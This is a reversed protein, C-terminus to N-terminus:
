GKVEIKLRHVFRQPRKAQTALASDQVQIESIYEGSKSPIGSILGSAADLSLGPPLSGTMVSWTYEGNGGWATLQHTFPKGIFANKRRATSTIAVGKIPQLRAAFNNRLNAYAPDNHRSELEFPDNILDYLEVEGTPHEVYKWEGNFDQSRLGAWLFGVKGYDTGYGEILFDKRWAANPDALLPALNLGDTAKNVGALAFMTAPVDLNIAALKNEQRAGIGPMRIVFPVKISEEYAYRKAWLGHEGWMYGNDSTLIIITKELVNLEQLKNLIKAVARDVGRLTRLQNRHFEEEEQASDVLFHHDAQHETVWAPKDSLDAEGFGRGRYLFNPFLTADQPAPIAPWHPASTSFYLFFPFDQNEDLFELAFDALRETDGEVRNRFYTWGPPLYPARYKNMYKGIMATKYGANMLGTALTDRDMYRDHGGNPPWLTLVGTNKAYFGGSLISARAPCCLPTSVYANNFKVGKKVLEEQVTPMAWLTDFRQDDTFILVFNYPEAKESVLDITTDQQSFIPQWATISLTIFLFINKLKIFSNVNKVIM